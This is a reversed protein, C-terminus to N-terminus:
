CGHDVRAAVRHCCVLLLPNHFVWIMTADEGSDPLVSIGAAESAIPCCPIKKRAYFIGAFLWGWRAFWLRLRFGPPWQSNGLRGHCYGMSTPWWRLRGGTM